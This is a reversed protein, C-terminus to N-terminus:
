TYKDGEDALQKWERDAGSSNLGKGRESFSLYSYYPLTNLLLLIFCFGSAPMVLDSLLSVVCTINQVKLMGEGSGRGEVM